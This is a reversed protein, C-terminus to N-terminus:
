FLVESKLGGDFTQRADGKHARMHGRLASESPFERGCEKCTFVVPPTDEPGPPVAANPAGAALGKLAVIVDAQQDESLDTFLSLLEVEHEAISRHIERGLEEDTLCRAMKTVCSICAVECGYAVAVGHVGKKCHVCCNSSVYQRQFDM